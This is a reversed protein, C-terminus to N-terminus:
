ILLRQYLKQEYGTIMMKKISFARKVNNNIGLKSTRSKSKIHPPFLKFIFAICCVYSKFAPSILSPIKEGM